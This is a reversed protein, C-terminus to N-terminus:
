LRKKLQQLDTKNSATQPLEKLFIFTDPIMYVPLHKMCYEKMGIVSEGAESICCVFATITTAANNKDFSSLVACSIIEPNQHLLTEIEALEIRYGNRKVMRDARGKFILDDQEDKEVLDGTKYFLINGEKFFVANNKEEAQWYGLMIGSGGICLEGTVDNTDNLIKGSYHECCKGIPFATSTYVSLDDAVKHYTCVNTETPGYLNYYDPAPWYQKLIKFPHIYFVEGAFLILRLKEYSYKQMKGFAALMNLITPTSYWITIKQESILQALLMPQRAMEENILILKAGHKICVFLDFVSLDFHFPAHSSFCDNPTPLFTDSSWNIFEMAAAHTYMVGKPKGTSGSTYLIYALDDPSPLLQTKNNKLLLLEGPLESILTYSDIFLHQFKKHVILAKVDCNEIIFLNREAPASYDIPVYAAGTKLTAFIASVFEASKNTYIAIRDTTGVSLAKLQKYLEDAAADLERYSVKREADVLATADPYSRAASELLHHLHIKKYM